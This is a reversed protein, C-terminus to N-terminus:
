EFIRFSGFFSEHKEDLIQGEATQLDTITKIFIESQPRWNSIEVTERGNQLLKSLNQEFVVEDGNLVSISYQHFHQFIAYSVIAPQDVREVSPNLDQVWGGMECKLLQIEIKNKGLSRIGVSKRLFFDKKHAETQCFVRHGDQTKVINIGAFTDISIFFTILVLKFIKM